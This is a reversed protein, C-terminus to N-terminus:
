GDTGIIDNPDMTAAAGKVVKAFTRYSNVVMFPTVGGGYQLVYDCWLTTPRPMCFRVMILKDNLRNLFQLKALESVSAKLPWVSIFTISQRDKDVLVFTKMGGDKILLDGDKDFEADFLAAKFFKHLEQVTVNEPALLSKPEGAQAPRVLAVVVIMVLLRISTPITQKAM